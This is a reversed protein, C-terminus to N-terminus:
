AVNKREAPSGFKKQRDSYEQLKKLVRHNVSGEPYAGDEDQKGAPLRLVEIGKMSPVSRTFARNGKASSKRALPFKGSSSRIVFSM